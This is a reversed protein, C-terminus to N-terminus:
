KVAKVAHLPIAGLAIIVAVSLYLVTYSGGAGLTAAAAVPAIVQPGANALNLIGLDRATSQKNPLVDVILAQDVSLYIGYGVGLVVAAVLVGTFDAWLALVAYAVAMLALASRVYKKRIGSRDSVRGSIVAAPISGVVVLLLAAAGATSVDAVRLVTKLYLFLSVAAVSNALTAIFRVLWVKGFDGNFPVLRIAIAVTGPSLVPDGVAWLFPTTLVTNIVAIASLVVIPRAEVAALGFGGILGVTQSVGFWASVRGRDAVDVRDPLFVSLVCYTCNIAFQLIIWSVTLLPASSSSGVGVLGIPTLVFGVIVWTRRSRGQAVAHDSLAGIVISTAAAVLAGMGVVVGLTTPAKQEGTFELVRRPLVMALPAYVALAFAVQASAAAAIQRRTTRPASFMAWIM